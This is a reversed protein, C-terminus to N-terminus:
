SRQYVEPIRDAGTKVRLFNGQESLDDVLTNNILYLENHPWNYGEAGFSIINPNETQRNQHIINGIVYAVGGSPFELKYSARGRAEDTLRNYLIFSEAARTKLLHGVRAHHFYSGTVGCSGFIVSM